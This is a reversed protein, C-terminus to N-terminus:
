RGPPRPWPRAPPRRFRRRGRMEVLLEAMASRAFASAAMDIAVSILPSASASGGGRADAPAAADGAGPSRSTDRCSGSPRGRGAAGARRGQGALVVRRQDVRDQMATGARRHRGPIELDARGLRGPQDPLELLSHGIRASRAMVASMQAEDQQRRAGRSGAGVAHQAAGAIEADHDLARRAAHLHDLGGAAGAEARDLAQAIERVCGRDETPIAAEGEHEAAVAPQGLDIQQRALISRRMTWAPLLM